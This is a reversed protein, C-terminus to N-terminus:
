KKKMIKIMKAGIEMMIIMLVDLIWRLIVDRIVMYEVFKTGNKPM